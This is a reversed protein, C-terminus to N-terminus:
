KDVKIYIDDATPHDLTIKSNKKKVIWNAEDETRGVIELLDGEKIKKKKGLGGVSDVVGSNGGRLLSLQVVNGPSVEVPDVPIEEGHPGTTPHGLLGDLYQVSNDDRVHELKHAESHVRASPIGVHDLYSEWLRHARLVQTAENKGNETLLYGSGTIEIQEEKLLRKLGRKLYKKHMHIFGALRHYAIPKGDERLISTLIDERLEQPVLTRKRLWRSLLGYKPAFTLVVMFQFTCFLMIAGGGSSDIWYSLYLGGLVSTVGFFAALFMMKNLRDSLLYASAAPTILLGVVLIVGVMSVASVVVLSVSMTLLYDFLLVPIGISAAMIPDFATIQFYRFFMIVLSLVIVAAIVAIWLDVDAIGLVDGMIFHVIDIHIYDHFVSVLVVGAAFIGTYIIGIATDEKIRSLNSVFSVLAVTVIAALLSGIFMAPAHAEVDFLIKMFLYGGSVGAIMAHSLADGLFSMKRLIVLCGIVSCVVAAISGGILAKVFFGEGMPAIFANALFEIM